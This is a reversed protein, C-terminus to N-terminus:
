YGGKGTVQGPRRPKDALCKGAQMCSKPNLCKGGPAKCGKNKNAM